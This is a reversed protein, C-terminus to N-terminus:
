LELDYNVIFRYDAFDNAGAVREDDDIWAGRFRFWLGKGWGEEIRWDLTLNYEIRDPSATPGTDPTDGYAVNAFLSIAGHRRQGLDRSYGLMIADEGARDFNNVIISLYNSPNGYPSRIGADGGTTSAALRFRNAGRVLELKASVLQTAFDGILEEGVSRQDTYQLNAWLETDAAFEFRKEFKSFFTAFTEFSYQYVAAVVTGDPWRYQAGGLGVGEDSGAVGAAESMPIFEDSDKLKITDVYGAVYALGLEDVPRNGVAVAEFTNPLMRIDHAGLYPMAFTQRGIRIGNRGAIRLGAYAEGLVTIAEPGDPTPEFLGTGAKDSPAYVKQSTFLSAKISVRDEWWGSRLELFGGLALGVSDPPIDRFRGLYYSRPKLTLTADRLFAGPRWARAGVPEFTSQQNPEFDVQRIPPSDPDSDVPDQASATAVSLTLFACALQTSLRNDSGSM